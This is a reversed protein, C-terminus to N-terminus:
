RHQQDNPDEIEPLGFRGFRLEDIRSYLVEVEEPTGGTAGVAEAFRGMGSLFANLVNDPVGEMGPNIQFLERQESRDNHQESM